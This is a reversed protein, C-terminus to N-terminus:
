PWIMSNVLQKVMKKASTVNSRLGESLAEGVLDMQKPNLGRMTIENVGVRGVSDVLINSTELRRSIRPSNEYDLLFMASESVQPMNALKVKREILASVLASRNDLCRKGYNSKSLYELSIGLAAIRSLHFNDYYNWIPHSRRQRRFLPSPM